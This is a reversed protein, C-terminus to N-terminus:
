YFKKKQKEARYFERMIAAKRVKRKTLDKKHYKKEKVLLLVRSKQVRKNFKSMLREVSEKPNRTLTIM